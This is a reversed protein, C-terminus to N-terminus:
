FCGFRKRRREGLYKLGDKSARVVEDIVGDVINYVFTHLHEDGEFLHYVLRLVDIVYEKKQAGKLTRFKEVHQIALRMIYLLDNETLEKRKLNLTSVEQKVFDVPEM